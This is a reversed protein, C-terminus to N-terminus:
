HVLSNVVEGGEGHLAVILEAETDFLGFCESIQMPSAGNKAAKVALILKQAEVELLSDEILLERHRNCELQMTESKYNLSQLRYSLHAIRMSDTNGINKKARAAGVFATKILFEATSIVACSFLHLGSVIKSLNM